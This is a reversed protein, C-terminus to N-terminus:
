VQGPWLCNMSASDSLSECEKSSYLQTGCYIPVFVCENMWVKSATLLWRPQMLRPDLGVTSTRSNRPITERASTRFFRSNTSAVNWKVAVALLLLSKNDSKWDQSELVGLFLYEESLFYRSVNVSRGIRM